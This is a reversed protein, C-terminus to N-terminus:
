RYAIVMGFILYLKQAWKRYVFLLHSHFGLIQAFRRFDTDWNLYPIHVAHAARHNFSLMLRFAVTGLIAGLTNCVLDMQSSERVPLYGQLLEIALSVFFGTVIAFICAQWISLKRVRILWLSFLFGLPIFGLINVIIDKLNYDEIQLSLKLPILIRQEFTLRSPLLLSNSSGISSHVRTGSGESLTYLAVVMDQSPLPRPETQTWWRFGQLVQDETMARNYVALGFLDGFWPGTAEPSNGVLMTRGTISAEEAILSLNPFRGVPEGGLYITSGKEDSSITVFRTKGALLAKTVGIERFRKEEGPEDILM